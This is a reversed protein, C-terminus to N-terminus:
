VPVMMMTILVVVVVVGLMPMRVMMSMSMSVFLAIPVSLPRISLAHMPKPVTMVAAMVRPLSMNVM